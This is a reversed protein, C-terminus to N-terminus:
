HRALLAEVEVRSPLSDQAGPRTVALAGAANAFRAAAALPRRECLAIALAACFADGAGVSDVATVAFAAVQEPGSGDTVLAGEAGLTVVAMRSHARLAELAEAHNRCGPALAAAEIENAVTVTALDLLESPHEGIPAPNLM